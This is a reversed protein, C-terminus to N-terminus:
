NFWEFLLNCHWVDKQIGCRSVELVVLRQGSCAWQLLGAMSFKSSSKVGGACGAKRGMGGEIGGIGCNCGTDIPM